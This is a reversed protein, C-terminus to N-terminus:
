AAAVYTTRDSLEVVLTRNEADVLITRDDADVVIARDEAAVLILIGNSRSGEQAVIPYSIAVNASPNTTVSLVNKFAVSAETFTALAVVSAISQVTQAGHGEVSASGEIAGTAGITREVEATVSSTAILSCLGPAIIHGEFVSVSSGTFAGSVDIYMGPSNDISASNTIAGDVVVEIYPTVTCNATAVLGASHFQFLNANAIVNAQPTYGTSVWVPDTWVITTTIKRFYGFYGPLGGHNGSHSLYADYDLGTAAEMNAVISTLSESYTLSAAYGTGNESLTLIKIDGGTAYDFLSGITEETVTTTNYGDIWYGSVLVDALANVILGANATASASADALGFASATVNPTSSMAASASVQAETDITVAAGAALESSGLLSVSVTTTQGGDAVVTATSSASASVAIIGQVLTAITCTAAITASSYPQVGAVATITAGAALDATAQILVVVSSTATATATCAVAANGVCLLTGTATVEAAATIFGFNGTLIGADAVVNAQPAYGTNVWEPDTWVITTTIKRFSGHYGALGGRYGSNGGIYDYDFGTAAEMNAVISGPSESYTGGASYGTGSEFLSIIDLNSGATYDFYAGIGDTTVITTNYGDIWYGSVDVAATAGVVLGGGATISAVATAQAIASTLTAATATVHGSAVSLSDTYVAIKHGISIHVANGAIAASVEKYLTPSATVACAAAIAGTVNTTVVSTSTIECSAVFSSVVVYRYTVPAAATTTASGILTANVATIVVAVADVSCASTVDFLALPQIFPAVSLSAAATINAQVATYTAADAGVLASANIAAQSNRITLAEASVLATADVGALSELTVAGSNATLDCVAELSASTYAVRSGVAVNTAQATISVVAQRQVVANANSSAACVLAAHSFRVRYGETNASANCGMVATARAFRIVSQITVVGAANVVSASTHITLAAQASVDASASFTGAGGVLVGVSASASIVGIAHTNLASFNM